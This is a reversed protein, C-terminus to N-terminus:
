VLQPRYSVRSGCMGVLHGYAEYKKINLMGDHLSCKPSFIYMQRLTMFRGRVKNETLLSANEEGILVIAVVDSWRLVLYLANFISYKDINKEEHQGM